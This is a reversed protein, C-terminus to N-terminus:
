PHQNGIHKELAKLRNNSNRLAKKMTAAQEISCDITNSIHTIQKSLTEAIHNEIAESLQQQISTGSHEALVSLAELYDADIDISSM